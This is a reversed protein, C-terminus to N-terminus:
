DTTGNGAELITATEGTADEWRKLIVDCYAPSIEVCFCTRASQEAAILTTGSGCFPEYVVGPWSQMAILPLGVPYPAPHGDAGHMAGQRNVRFVSDHIAHSQVPDNGASRKKVKGDTGRQGKGSHAEGAHKCSRAKAARVSEKNFHWIFEHSPALRGNWDGPMGPGQDWVYWAFRRWGQERMWTLWGDWYPLWEGDRHIMGLNVLVQGADTMPLNGFVGRMLGDWNAIKENSEKTYDRQQGYPPSTFCLDAKQGGMLREVTAIDTSDGCILRHRGLQWLDGSNCRTPASEPVEDPDTLLETSAVSGSLDAIMRDLDDGDFGTGTLGTPTAALEALLETLSAENDIGLRTTRNDAILIRLEQEDDVDVWAVPVYTYNMAKAVAYRHNGALIHGTRKNAVITGYFGNTEVSQQIAGFDGQNANRPHIKLAGLLVEEISTNITKPM